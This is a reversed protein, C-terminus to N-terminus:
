VGEGGGLAIIKVKLLPASKEEKNGAGKAAIVLETQGGQRVLFEYVVRSSSGKPGSTSQMSQGILTLVFPDFEPAVVHHGEGLNLDVVFRQGVTLTLTKGSDKPTLVLPEAARASGIMGLSVLILLLSIARNLLCSKQM